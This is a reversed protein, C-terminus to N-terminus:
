LTAAAARALRAVQGILGAVAHLQSVCIAHSGAEEAITAGAREAM